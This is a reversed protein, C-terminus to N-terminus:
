LQGLLDFPTLDIKRGVWFIVWLIILLDLDLLDFFYLWYCSVWFIVEM